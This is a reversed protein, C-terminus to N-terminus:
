NMYSLVGDTTMVAIASIRQGRVLWRKYVPAEGRIAYGFKRAQDRRNSGTEDVFVFMDKRYQLIEAMYAGRYELCRQKAAVQVLKKEKFLWQPTIVPM